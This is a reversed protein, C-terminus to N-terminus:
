NLLTNLTDSLNGKSEMNVAVLFSNLLQLFLPGVEVKIVFRAFILMHVTPEVSPLFHCGFGAHLSHHRFSSYHEFLQLLWTLSKTHM